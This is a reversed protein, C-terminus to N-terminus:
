HKNTDHFINYECFSYAPNYCIDNHPIEHTIDMDSINEIKINEIKCSSGTNIEPNKILFDWEYHKNESATNATNIQNEVFKVKSYTSIDACLKELITKVIASVGFDIKWYLDSLWKFM